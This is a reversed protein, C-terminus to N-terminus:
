EEIEVAGEAENEEVEHPATQWKEGVAERLAHWGYNLQFLGNVTSDRKVIEELAVVKLDAVDYTTHCLFQWSGNEEHIVRM